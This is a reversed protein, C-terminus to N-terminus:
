TRFEIFKSSNAQSQFYDYGAKLNDQMEKKTFSRQIANDKDLCYILQESGVIDQFMHKTLGANFIRRSLCVHEFKNNYKTDFGGITEICHRTFYMCYGNALRHENLEVDIMILMLELDITNVYKHTRLPKYFTACLHNAGSNIFHTWWCDELIVCDDELIFIHDAGSEYCLQLCKNKAVSIGARENFRFDATVYQDNSCDDVVFVDCGKSYKYISEICEKFSDPRNRTLIAIAVKSM